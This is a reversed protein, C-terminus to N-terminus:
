ALRQADQLAFLQDDPFGPAAGEDSVVLGSVREPAEVGDTSGVARRQAAM